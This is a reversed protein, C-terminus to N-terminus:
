SGHPRKRLHQFEPSSGANELDDDNDFDNRDEEQELDIDAASPDTGPGDTADTILDGVGDQSIYPIEPDPDEHVFRPDDTSMPVGKASPPCGALHRATTG